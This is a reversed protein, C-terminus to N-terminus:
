RAAVHIRPMAGSRMGGEVSVFAGSTSQATTRTVGCVTLAVALVLTRLGVFVYRGSM